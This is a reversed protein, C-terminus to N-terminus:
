RAAPCLDMAAGAPLHPGTSTKQEGLICGVMIIMLMTQM